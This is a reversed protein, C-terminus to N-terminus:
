PEDPKTHCGITSSSPRSGGCGAALLPQPTNLSPGTFRAPRVQGSMGVRPCRLVEQVEERKRLPMAPETRDERGPAAERCGVRRGPPDAGGPGHRTAGAARRAASGKGGAAPVERGRRSPRDQRLHGGATGRHARSGTSRSCRLWPAPDRGGARLGTDQRSRLAHLLRGLRLYETFGHSRSECGTASSRLRGLAGRSSRISVGLRDM